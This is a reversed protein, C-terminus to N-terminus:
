KKRNKRNQWLQSILNPFFRAGALLVFLLVILSIQALNM